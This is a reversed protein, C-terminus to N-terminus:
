PSFFSWCKFMKREGKGKIRWYKIFSLLEIAYMNKQTLKLGHQLLYHIIYKERKSSFKGIFNSRKRLSFKFIYRFSEDLASIKHQILWECHHKSDGYLYTKYRLWTFHSNSHRNNYQPNGTLTQQLSAMTM